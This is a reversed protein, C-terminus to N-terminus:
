YQKKVEVVVSDEVLSKFTEADGESGVVAGYHTPIAINRYFINEKRCNKSCTEESNDKKGYNDEKSGNNEKNNCEKSNGYSVERTKQIIM